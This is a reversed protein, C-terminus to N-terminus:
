LRRSMEISLRLCAKALVRGTHPTLEDEHGVDGGTCFAKDGAGTLVVVGIKPDESSDRFADTMEYITECTFANYAHPRNITITAVGDKKEYLVDKFEM